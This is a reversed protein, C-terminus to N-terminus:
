LQTIIGKAGAAGGRRWNAYGKRFVVVETFDDAGRLQGLCPAGCVAAERPRAPRGRAPLPLAALVPLVPLVPAVPGVPLALMFLAVSFSSTVTAEVVVCSSASALKVKSPEVKARAPLAVIVVASLVSVSENIDVSASALTPGFKLSYLFELEGCSLSSM